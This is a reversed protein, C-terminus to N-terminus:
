IYIKVYYSMMFSVKFFISSKELVKDLINKFFPQPSFLHTHSMISHKCGHLGKGFSSITYRMGMWFSYEHFKKQLYQMWKWVFFSTNCDWKWHFNPKCIFLYISNYIYLMRMIMSLQPKYFFSLIVLVKGRFLKLKIRWMYMLMIHTKLLIFNNWFMRWIQTLTCKIARTLLIPFLEFALKPCSLVLNNNNHCNWREIVVNHLHSYTLLHLHRFTTLYLIFPKNKLILFVVLFTKVMNPLQPIPAWHFFLKRDLWWGDLHNSLPHEKMTARISELTNITLQHLTPNGDGCGLM